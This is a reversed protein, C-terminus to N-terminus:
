RTTGRNKVTRQITHHWLYATYIAGYLTGRVRPTDMICFVPTFWLRVTNLKKKATYWVDECDITDGLVLGDVCVCTCAGMPVCMCAHLLNAHTACM